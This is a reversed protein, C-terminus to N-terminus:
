KREVENNNVNNSTNTSMNTEKLKREKERECVEKFWDDDDEKNM